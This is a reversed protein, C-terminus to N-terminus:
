EGTWRMATGHRLLGTTGREAREQIAIDEPKAENPWHPANYSVFMFFPKKDKGAERLFRVARDTIDDTLYTIDTKDTFNSVIMSPNLGEAEKKM